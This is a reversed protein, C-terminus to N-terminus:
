RQGFTIVAENSRDLTPVRVELHIIHVTRPLVVLDELPLQICCRRNGKGLGISLRDETYEKIFNESCQIYALM